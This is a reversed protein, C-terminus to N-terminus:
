VSRNPWLCKSRQFDLAAGGHVLTGWVIIYFALSKM